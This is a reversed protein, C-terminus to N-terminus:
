FLLSLGATANYVQTIFGKENQLSDAYDFTVINTNTNYKLNKPNTTIISRKKGKVDFSIKMSDAKKISLVNDKFQGDQINKIDIGVNDYYTPLKPTQYFQFFDSSFTLSNTYPNM